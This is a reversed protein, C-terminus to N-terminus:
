REQQIAIYEEKTGLNYTPCVGKIDKLEYKSEILIDKDEDYAKLIEILEAATM